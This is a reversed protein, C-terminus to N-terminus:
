GTFSPACCSYKGGGFLVVVDELTRNAKGNLLCVNRSQSVKQKAQIRRSRIGLRIGEKHGEPFLHKLAAQTNLSFTLFLFTFTLRWARSLFVKPIHCIDIWIYWLQPNGVVDIFRHISDGISKLCHFATHFSFSRKKLPGTCIWINNLRPLYLQM